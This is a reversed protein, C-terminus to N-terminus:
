LRTLFGVACGQVVRAQSDSTALRQPTNSCPHVRAVRLGAVRNCTMKYAIHRASLSSREGRCDWNWRNTDISPKFYAEVTERGSLSVSFSNLSKLRNHCSPQPSAIM